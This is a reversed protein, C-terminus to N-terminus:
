EEFKTPTMIFLQLFIKRQDYEGIIFNEVNSAKLQRQWFDRYYM